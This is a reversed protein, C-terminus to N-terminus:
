DSSFSFLSEVWNRELPLEVGTTPDLPLLVEFGPGLPLARNVRLDGAHHYAIFFATLMDMEPGLERGAPPDLVAFLEAIQQTSWPTEDCTIRIGIGTQGWIKTGKVVQIALKTRALKLVILCRVLILFLNSALARDATLAPTGDAVTVSVELGAQARAEALAPALLESIAVGPVFRYAPEGTQGAVGRILDLIRQSEFQVVGWLEDLPVHTNDIDVSPQAPVHDLFSKLAQLPNKLRNTLSAALVAFCRVRDMVVIHQLVTLKERLLLNRERQVLHFEMARLLVGLLDRDDWPKVVYRFIAGSNVADIASDLDSYATTLIRVVQPRTERLWSLLEVGTEGPIRQDSIVVGIGDGERAIIQRAEAVSPATLCRLDNGFLKPFYKLSQIEDDVYLVAYKKYDYGKTM